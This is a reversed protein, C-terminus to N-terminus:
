SVFRHGDGNAATEMGDASIPVPDLILILREGVKAVGQLFKMGSSNVIAQIDSEPVTLVESVQDVTLAVTCDNARAVLLQTSLDHAKHALGCRKRTDIAPIVKGHLNFVGEIYDPGQPPRTLAVMRLVQVVSAMDLAYDQEDLKFTLLQVRGDRTQMHKEMGRQAPDEISM